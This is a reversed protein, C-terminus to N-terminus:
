QSSHMANLALQIKNNINTIAIPFTCGPIYFYTFRTQNIWQAKEANWQKYIVQYPKGAINNTYVTKNSNSWSNTHWTEDLEKVLFHNDDYTRTSREVNLWQNNQWLQFISTSDSYINKSQHLWIKSLTDWTQYEMHT